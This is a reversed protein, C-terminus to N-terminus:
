SLEVIAASCTACKGNEGLLAVGWGGCGACKPMVAPPAFCAKKHVKWDAAQCDRGCYRAKACKACTM